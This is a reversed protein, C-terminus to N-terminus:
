DPPTTPAPIRRKAVSGSALRYLGHVGLGILAWTWPGWLVGGIGDWATNM